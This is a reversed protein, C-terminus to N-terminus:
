QPIGGPAAGAAGSGTVLGRGAADRGAWCRGAAAPPWRLWCRGAWCCAAGAWCFRPWRPPGQGCGPQGPVIVDVPAIALDHVRLRGWAGERIGSVARGAGVRSRLDGQMRLALLIWPLIVAALLVWAMRAPLRVDGPRRAPLSDTQNNGDSDMGCSEGM